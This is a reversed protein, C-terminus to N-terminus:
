SELCNSPDFILRGEQGQCHIAVLSGNVFELDYDHPSFHYINLMGSFNMDGLPRNTEETTSGGVRTRLLRGNPTVEYLDLLCDFDKTQFNGGEYGDPMRYAFEVDDFMAM